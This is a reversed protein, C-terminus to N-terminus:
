ASLSPSPVLRAPRAYIAVNGGLLAGPNEYIGPVHEGLYAIPTYRTRGARCAIALAEGKVYGKLLPKRSGCAPLCGCRNKAPLSM